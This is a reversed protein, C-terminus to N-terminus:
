AAEAYFRELRSPFITSYVEGIHDYVVYVTEGSFQSIYTHLYLGAKLQASMKSDKKASIGFCGTV